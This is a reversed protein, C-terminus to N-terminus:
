EDITIKGEKALKEVYKKITQSSRIINYDKELKVKIQRINMDRGELELIELILHKVVLDTEEKTPKKEGM